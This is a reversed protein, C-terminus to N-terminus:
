TPDTEAGTAVLEAILGTTLDSMNLNKLQALQAVQRDSADFQAEMGEIRQSTAHRDIRKILDLVKEVDEPKM